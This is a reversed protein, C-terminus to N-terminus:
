GIATRTPPPRGSNTSPEPSSCAPPTAPSRRCVPRRPPSSPCTGVMSQAHVSTSAIGALMLTALRLAKDLGKAQAPM